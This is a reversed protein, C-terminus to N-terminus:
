ADLSRLLRSSTSEIRWSHPLLHLLRNRALYSGVLNTPPQEQMTGNICCSTTSAASCGLALGLLILLGMLIYMDTDDEDEDEDKSKKHKNKKVPDQEDEKKREKKVVGGGMSTNVGGVPM